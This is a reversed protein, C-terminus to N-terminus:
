DMSGNLIAQTKDVLDAGIFNRWKAYVGRTADIFQQKEAPTLRTVLVGQKKFKALLKPSQDLEDQILSIEYRSADIAAQQVIKRDKKSWSDWVQTNVAFILPDAVYDWLTVYRQSLKSMKTNLYTSLPNEQGDIRGELLGEKMDKFNMQSPIAGLATFTDNFLLSGVVRFRLGRMDKLQHVPRSANSIQRFGDLGWALPKVGQEELFGVLTKGVESNLVHEISAYDPFLFPMSFLNLPYVDYSWNITSGIAMDIAGQRLASFEHIQEGNLLLANPYISIKIRGKTRNEILEAWKKAAQGWPYRLDLVISMKYVYKYKAFAPASFVCLALAGVMGLLIRQLPKIFFARNREVNQKKMSLLDKFVMEFM